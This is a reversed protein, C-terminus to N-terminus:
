NGKEFIVVLVVTFNHFFVKGCLPAIEGYTHFGIWPVDNSLMDQLPKIVYSNFDDKFIVKGRGACDFQLVAIPKKGKNRELLKKFDNIAKEAIIKPYRKALHITTGEPIEVSFQVAGTEPEVQVPMRIILQDGCPAAFHHLEGLCLHFADDAKLSDPNGPLYNKFINWAPEGDIEMLLNKNTKTAVQAIGIEKCGHSVLWDIGYDGVICVAVISDNYVKGNYYQYTKKFQLADGSTGGLIVVNKELNDNLAKLIETTNATMSDPFILLSAKQNQCCQKNVNKALLKGCEYSNKEIGEALYSKLQLGDGAFLMIGVAYNSEDSGSTTIIGEGSCGASPIDGIVQNVGQLLSDQDYGTTAFVLAFNPDKGKLANMAIQAAEIGAAKADSVASKGIKITMNSM